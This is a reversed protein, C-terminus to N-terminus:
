ALTSKWQGFNVAISKDYDVQVGGVYLPSGTLSILVQRLKARKDWKHNSWAYTQWAWGVIKRDMIYEVADLGAYIGAGNVGLVSAVGRFYSEVEPGAADFDVAFFIPADHPKGLARAQALAVNADSRGKSYGGAAGSGSDEWVVVLDIGAKSYRIAEAVTLNKSPDHSLYRCVFSKGAIKLTGPSIDGYAWDVGERHAEKQRAERRLYKKVLHSLYRARRGDREAERKHGRKDTKQFKRIQEKRQRLRRRLKRRLKKIEQRTKKM